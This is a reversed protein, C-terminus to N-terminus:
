ENTLLALATHLPADQEKPLLYITTEVYEEAVPASIDPALGTGEYSTGSPPLYDAVTVTIYSGDNLRYGTQMTCKGFTTEGILTAYGHDRLAGAFLEAASATRRNQLVVIPLTLQEDDESYYATQGNNENGYALSILLKGKPLIRDLVSVISSLYGGTNDRVDFVLGAVGERQLALLAAELQEATKANFSLLRLYGIRKGNETYTRYIVSDADVQRRVATLRLTEEGRAVTLTITTDPEGAVLARAAEYGIVAVSQGDIALIRDGALLGAEKAPSATHVHLVLMAGGAPDETSVVGIGCRISANMSAAFDRYEAPTYFKAYVDGAAAIYGEAMGAQLADNGPLTGAYNTRYLFDIFLLREALSVFDSAYTEMYAAVEAERHAPQSATTGVNQANLSALLLLRLCDEATGERSGTISVLRKTLEGVEAALSDRATETAALEATLSAIQADRGALLLDFEAQMATTQDGLQQRYDSYVAYYCFQYTTLGTFVVCLAVCLVARLLSVQKKLLKM